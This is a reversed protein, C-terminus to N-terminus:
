LWECTRVCAAEGLGRTWPKTSWSRAGGLGPSNGKWGCERREQRALKHLSFPSVHITMRLHVRTTCALPHMGHVGERRKPPFIGMWRPPVSGDRRFCRCPISPMPISVNARPSAVSSFCAGDRHIRTLFFFLTCIRNRKRPVFRIISPFCLADPGCWLLVRRGGCFRGQAFLWMLSSTGQMDMKCHLHVCSRM